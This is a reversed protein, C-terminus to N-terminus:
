GKVLELARLVRRATRVKVSDAKLILEENAQTELKVVKVAYDADGQAARLGDAIRRAEIEDQTHAEDRKMESYCPNCKGNPSQMWRVREGRGRMPGTLNVTTTHGCGSTVTYQAM